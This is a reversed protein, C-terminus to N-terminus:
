NLRGLVAALQAAVSVDLGNRFEFRGVDETLFVFHVVQQRVVVVDALDGAQLQDVRGGSELQERSILLQNVEM